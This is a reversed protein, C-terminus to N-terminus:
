AGANKVWGTPAVFGAGFDLRAKIEMGDVEFGNRTETYIGEQGDLYGYELSGGNTALYWATASNADLRPEVVVELGKGLPNADSTKAPAIDSVLQRAVYELSAPVIIFAPSQAIFGGEIEKQMRLAKVASALGAAGLASGAGTLLTGSDANFLAAGDISPNSLLVQALVDGERRAGAEGFKRLLDAFAGLDDNIIAQRSLAIIRGYTVLNYAAAADSVYSYHYEGNENVQKLEPAANLRVVTRSRFDPLTAKRAVAKLAPPANEFAQALVRGSSDALLHSFDSTSMARSVLEMRSMSRDVRQGSAELSARALEILPRNDGAAGRVGMRAAIADAISATQAGGAGAHPLRGRTGGADREAIHDLIASRAADISLNDALLKELMAGPLAHRQALNEIESRHNTQMHNEKKPIPHSRHMGAGIDAPVAVLSAEIPEWSTIRTVGGAEYETAAIRYGVSLAPLIGAEVDAKAQQADPGSGFRAIGRLKSGDTKIDEIRGVPKTHDHHMLLALGQAARTLDISEPAHDLVEKYGGRDIPTDTALVCPIGGDTGVARLDLFNLGFTRRQEM